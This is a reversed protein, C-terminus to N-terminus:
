ENDWTSMDNRQSILEANTWITERSFMSGNKVKYFYKWDLQAMASEARGEGHFGYQKARDVIPQVSAASRLMHQILFLVVLEADIQHKTNAVLINNISNLVCNM